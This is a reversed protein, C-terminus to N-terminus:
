NLLETFLSLDFPRLLEAIRDQNTTLIETARRNDRKAYHHDIEKSIENRQYEANKKLQAAKKLVERATTSDRGATLVVDLRKQAETVADEATKCRIVSETQHKKLQGIM